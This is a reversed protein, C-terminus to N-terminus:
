SKLVLVATGGNSAFNQYYGVTVCGDVCDTLCVLSKNGPVYGLSRDLYRKWDRRGDTSESIAEIDWASLDPGFVRRGGSEALQKLTAFNTCHMEGIVDGKKLHRRHWRDWRESVLDDL